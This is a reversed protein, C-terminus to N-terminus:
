RERERERKREREGEGAKERERERATPENDRSLKDLVQSCYKSQILSGFMCMYVNM